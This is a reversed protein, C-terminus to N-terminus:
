SSFGDHARRRSSTTALSRSAAGRAASRIAAAARSATASRPEKESATLPPRVGQPISAIRLSWSSIGHASVDSKWTSSRTAEGPLWSRLRVWM